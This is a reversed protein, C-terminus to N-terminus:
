KLGKKAKGVLGTYRRWVCHEVSATNRNIGEDSCLILVYRRLKKTGTSYVEDSIDWVRRNVSGVRPRRVGNKIDPKLIKKM